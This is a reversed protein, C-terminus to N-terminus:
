TNIQQRLAGAFHLDVSRGSTYVASARPPAEELFLGVTTGLLLVSEEIVKGISRSGIVQREKM